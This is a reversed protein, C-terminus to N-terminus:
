EPAAPALPAAADTPVSLSIPASAELQPVLEAVEIGKDLEQRLRDLDKKLAPAVAYTFRQETLERASSSANKLTLKANVLQAEAMVAKAEATEIRAVSEKLEAQHTANTFFYTTIAGFAVGTLAGMVGWMKVAADVGHKLLTTLMLLFVMSFIALAIITQNTM